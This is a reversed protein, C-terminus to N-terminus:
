FSGNIGQQDGHNIIEYSLKKQTLGSEYSRGSVVIFKTSAVIKALKIKM